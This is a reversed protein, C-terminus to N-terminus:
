EKEKKKYLLGVPIFVLYGFVILVPVINMSVFNDYPQNRMIYLLFHGAAVFVLGAGILMLNLKSYVRAQNKM